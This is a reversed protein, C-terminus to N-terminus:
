TRLLAYLTIADSKGRLPVPGLPEVSLGAPMPAREVVAASALYPRDLARCADEIRATTNMTDGLMTIERKVAGLEGVVLPGAHLAARFRPLTGFDREWTGRRALVAAEVAFITAISRGEAIGREFPWTVIIEDGVYRYIEGKAALIPETAAAVFRDLMLLFREPGIREAIATSGVIDLMLVVREETRPHRYRGTLLAVLTWGGILSRITFAFNFLVSVALAFVMSNLIPLRMGTAGPAALPVLILVPLIIATYLAIRALLAVGLSLRRLAEGAPATLIFAELSSIGFGILGGIAAGVGDDGVGAGGASRTMAIGVLAGLGISRLVIGWRQRTIARM